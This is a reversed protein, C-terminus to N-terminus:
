EGHFYEMREKLCKEGLGAAACVNRDLPKLWHRYMIGGKIDRHKKKMQRLFLGLRTKIPMYKNGAHAEIEDYEDDLGFLHMAEHAMAEYDGTWNLNTTWAYPNCDIQFIDRGEKDTHFVINVSFGPISLHKEAADEMFMIKKIQEPEGNINIDIHILIDLPDEKSVYFCKNNSYKTDCLKYWVRIKIDEYSEEINIYKELDKKNKSDHVSKVKKEAREIGKKNINIKKVSADLYPTSFLLNLKNFYYEKNPSESALVMIENAIRKTKGDLNKFSNHNQITAVEPISPPVFKCCSAVIVLLLLILKM